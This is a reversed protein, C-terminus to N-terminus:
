TLTYNKSNLLSINKYKYISKDFFDINYFLAYIFFIDTAVKIWIVFTLVGFLLFMNIYNPAKRIFYYINFIFLFSFCIFGVLGCYLIFRCYGIDTSYYFAGFRGSGIIWTKLNDPWIWMENNLKDTSDTRFEGYELWNFFGEFAFRLNEHFAHNNLYFFTSLSVAIGCIIFFVIGLRIRDHQLNIKFLGSFFIFYTIGLGLGTVTTRSIINGVVGIVFFSVILYILLSKSKRVENDECILCSIMILVIAFRVGAPDLAAGIGYIRGVKKFFDQGQVVFLNIFNDLSPINDILLAFICQVVCVGALYITLISLGFKGHHLRLLYTVGYAAFIWIFFSVIYTAYSYDNSNNIDASILCIISFCISIFISLLLGKNLSLNNININEIYFAVVGFAALILKTNLSEPLFTFSIPFLFFSVSIGLLLRIIYKM